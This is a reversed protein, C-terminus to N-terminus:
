CLKTGAPTIDPRMGFRNVLMAVKRMIEINLVVNWITSRYRLV